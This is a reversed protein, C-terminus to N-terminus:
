ESKPDLDDPQEGIIENLDDFTLNQADAFTFSVNERRKVVFAVAAMLMGQPHQDDGLWGLPARALEEVKAVEGLTLTKIDM